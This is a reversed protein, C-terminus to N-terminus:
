ASSTRDPSSTAGPTAGSAPPRRPSPRRISSRLWSHQSLDSAPSIRRAATGTVGTGGTVSRDCSPTEPCAAAWPSTPPSTWDKLLAGKWGKLLTGGRTGQRPTSCASVTLRHRQDFAPIPASPTWTSGTRRWRGRRRAAGAWERADDIAHSYTYAPQGLLRQPFPAAVPGVRRTPPTAAPPRTPTAPPGLTPCRRIGAGHSLTPCSHRRSAPARPGSTPSPPWWASVEPEAARRAALEALLRDPFEPRHRLTPPASGASDAARQGLTLLIALRPSASRTRYRSLPSQQAMQNAIGQYVSTNYYLGYGGRIVTSHKTVLAPLAFGFRPAFGHKTPICCRVRYDWRQSAAQVVPIRHVPAACVPTVASSFGPGIDLNVLRGYLETVPAAYDWRLGANM